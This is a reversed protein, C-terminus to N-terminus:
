ASPTPRIEVAQYLRTIDEMVELLIESSVAVYELHTVNVVGPTYNDLAHAFFAWQSEASLLRSDIRETNQPAYKLEALGAEFEKRAAALGKDIETGTLGAARFLYFKAARQSLMRLRGSLNVLRASVTGAHKELAVTAAHAIKLVEENLKAVVKLNDMSPMAYAASRYPAWLQALQAYLGRIEPTPAFAQLESLQNDFLAVSADMIKLAKKTHINLLLQAYIKAIRQSLMRQRGAKNIASAMDLPKPTAQAPLVAAMPLTLLAQLIKRRQNM